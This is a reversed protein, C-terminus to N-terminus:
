PTRTQCPLMPGDVGRNSTPPKIFCTVVQPDRGHTPVTRVAVAPPDTPGPTTHSGHLSVALLAGICGTAAVAFYTTPRHNIPSTTM